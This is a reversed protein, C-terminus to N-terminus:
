ISFFETMTEWQKCLWALVVKKKKKEKEARAELCAFDSSEKEKEEGRKKEDLDWM